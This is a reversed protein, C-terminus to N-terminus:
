KLNAQENILNKLFTNIENHKVNFEKEFIEKYTMYTMLHKLGNLGDKQYVIKCIMGQIASGPNTYPDTYWFNDIDSLDSNPHGQLYENVRKLHWSISHGMSGAYFAVLGEQLPSKPYLHNLYLHAVEHFYNEGMGGCFVQNDKDDSIGSPKLKNGMLLAYDFGRLKYLEDPDDAMYYRVPIPKLDWIHELLNIQLILSDANKPKFKHYKPFYFTVNRITKTRWTLLNWTMPNIFYPQRHANFGVYYNAIAVTMINTNNIMSFQAKIHVYNETPRMYLITPKYGQSYMPFDGQAFIIQDPITRQKLENAAWYQSMAPLKKGKFSSLYSDFFHLATSVEVFTTDVGPNLYVQAHTDNALIFLVAFLLQKIM